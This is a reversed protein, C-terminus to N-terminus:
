SSGPGLLYLYPECFVFWGVTVLSLVLDQLYHYDWHYDWFMEFTVKSYFCFMRIDHMVFNILGKFIFLEYVHSQFGTFRCQPHLILYQLRHVVVPMNLSKIPNSDYHFRNESKQFRNKRANESLDTSLGTLLCVIAGSISYNTKLWM